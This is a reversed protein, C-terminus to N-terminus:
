EALMQLWSIAKRKLEENVWYTLAKREGYEKVLDHLFATGLYYGLRNYGFYNGGSLRFWEREKEVTWEKSDQLFSSAISKHHDKCFRLWEEGSDDYSFYVSEGADKVIQQSIYTAAGERYLSTIGHNWDVKKWELGEQDSLFNHYIHGIEHAVIVQLHEPDPSLKEVAFYIQGIIKREVFANSGFGGVLLNFQLDLDFGFYDIYKQVIQKIIQPLREATKRMEEIRSPYREIAANLREETRPCHNAFYEQFVEPYAQYYKELYDINLRRTSEVLEFFTSTTDLLKM